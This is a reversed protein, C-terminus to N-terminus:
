ECWEPRIRWDVETMPDSTHLVTRPDSVTLAMRSKGSWTPTSEDPKLSFIIRTLFEKTIAKMESLRSRVLEEHESDLLTITGHALDGRIDSLSLGGSTPKRFLLDIYPHNEGFVLETVRLTRKKLGVVCDFYAERVFRVPDQEILEEYKESICQVTEARKEGKTRAPLSTALGFDARGRATAIAISELAIYFCLFATFVNDTSTGRNYWDIAADLLLADETGPFNRLLSDLVSLDNKTPKALGPESHTTTYKVRWKTSAGYAFALRNVGVAIHAIARRVGEVSTDGVEVWGDYVCVNRHVGSLDDSDECKWLHFHSGFSVFQQPLEIKTRVVFEVVPHGTCMMYFLGGQVDPKEVLQECEALLQSPDGPYIIPKWEGLKNYHGPLSVEYLRKEGIRWEHRLEDLMGVMFKVNGGKTLMYNMGQVSEKHREFLASNGNSFHMKFGYLGFDSNILLELVEFQHQKYLLPADQYSLRESFYVELLTRLFMRCRNFAARAKEVSPRKGSQYKTLIHGPYAQDVLHAIKPHGSGKAKKRVYSAIDRSILNSSRSNSLDRFPSIRYPEGSACSLLNELLALPEEASLLALYHSHLNKKSSRRSLTSRLEILPDKIGFQLGDVRVLTYILEVLGNQRARSFLRRIEGEAPLPKKSSNM